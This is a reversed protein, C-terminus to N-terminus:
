IGIIGTNNINGLYRLLYTVLSHPYIPCFQFKVFGIALAKELPITVRGLSGPEGISGVATKLLSYGTRGIAIRIGSLGYNLVEAVKSTIRLGRPDGQEM